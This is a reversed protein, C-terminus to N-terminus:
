TTTSSEAAALRAIEAVTQHEGETLQKGMVRGWFGSLPGSLQGRHLIRLKGDGSKTVSHQVRLPALPLTGTSVFGQDTVAELIAIKSKFPAGKPKLRGTAGAGFPADLEPWVIGADYEPWRAPDGM